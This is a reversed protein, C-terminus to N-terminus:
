PEGSSLLEVVTDLGRQANDHSVYMESVGIVQGNGAKLVFYAEGNASDRIEYRTPDIGNSRVSDTGSVASSRRTYSQSQLVIEGNDARLHFYFKDDIGTFVQFQPQALAAYVHATELDSEVTSVARNADYQSVYMESTGIIWGNGAKLNFYWEGDQAELVEYRSPTTGNTRVSAVGNKAGALSTYGQSQLIKQGNAALLHFYFKGDKGTFTEFRGTQWSDAAGGEGYPDGSDVAPDTACAALLLAFAISTKM